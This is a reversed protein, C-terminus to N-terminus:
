RWGANCRSCAPRLNALSDSGDVGIPILHDVDTAPEGCFRRL